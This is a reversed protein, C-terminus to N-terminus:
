GTKRNHLDLAQMSSRRARSTHHVHRDKSRAPRSSVKAPRQAPRHWGSVFSEGRAGCGWLLSARVVLNGSLAVDCSVNSVGQSRRRSNYLGEIYAIVDHRAQAKRAYDTRYIRENKLASFFSEAM